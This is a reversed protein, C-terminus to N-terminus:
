KVTKFELIAKQLAPYLANLQALKADSPLGARAAKDYEQLVPFAKNYADSLADYAPKFRAPLAGSKLLPESVDLINKADNVADYAKSESVNLANPHMVYHAPACSALMLLLCLSLTFSKIM